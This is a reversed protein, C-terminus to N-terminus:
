QEDSDPDVIFEQHYFKTLLLFMSILIPGFILGMFGWLQVGIIVGFLTILPHTDGLKNQLWIRFINDVSGIVFFGYLLMITGKIPENNAFLLISVPIYALASGLIPIMSVICTVFFWLWANPVGLILYILLGTAGQIIGIVPIGIANSFVLKNLEALLAKANDLNLPIINLLTKELLEREKLMFYLMLYSLFIGTISNLTGNLVQTAGQTLWSAVKDLSKEDLINLNYKLELQEIFGKVTKFFAGYQDLALTHGDFLVQAVFYLPLLLTLFSGVMVIAIAVNRSLQWRKEMTIVWNGLLINLTYAGLLAPIFSNLHFVLLGGLVFICSLLAIQRLLTNSLAQFKM